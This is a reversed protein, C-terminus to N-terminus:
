SLTFGCVPEVWTDLSLVAAEGRADVGQLYPDNVVSILVWEADILTTAGLLREKVNEWVEIDADRSLELFPILQAPVVAVAVNYDAIFDGFLEDIGEIAQHLETLVARETIPPEPEEVKLKNIAATVKKDSAAMTKLADCAIAADEESLEEPPAVTPTPRAASPLTPPPPQTADETPEALAVRTPEPTATAEVLGSLTNDGNGSGGGCSAVLM